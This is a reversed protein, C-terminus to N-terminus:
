ERRWSCAASDVVGADNEVIVCDGARIILNSESKMVREAQKGGMRLRIVAGDHEM